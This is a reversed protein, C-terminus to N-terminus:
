LHKRLFEIQVQINQEFGAGTYLGFHGFDKIVTLQKPELAQEYAALQHATPIIADNDSVIMLFPTPAIRHIFARPEFSIINFMSQLTVKNEWEGDCTACLKVFEYADVTNLVAPPLGLQAQELSEPAVHLTASPNGARVSSRNELMGPVMPAMPASQLEGSVFPVQVVVAKIRKDVAAASIANGGSLSSGWYV